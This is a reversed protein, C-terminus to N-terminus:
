GEPTIKKAQIVLPSPLWSYRTPLTMISIETFGAKILGQEWEKGTYVNSLAAAEARARAFGQQPLFYIFTAARIMASIPPLRWISAGVVDAITIRGGPKLLRAIEALVVPVDLHHAALACTIIDFHENRYPMAMASACTLRIASSPRRGPGQSEAFGAKEVKQSAKKLMALTIDLGVIQRWATGKRALKLPIVATGTAIDLVADGDYFPTMDLMTNVFDAYGWGWFQKLEKDVVQEYRPALATFAELIVSKESM